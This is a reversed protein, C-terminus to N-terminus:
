SRAGLPELPRGPRAVHASCTAVVEVGFALGRTHQEDGPLRGDLQTSPTGPSYTSADRFSTGAAGQPQAAPGTGEGFRPM